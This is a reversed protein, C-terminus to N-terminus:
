TGEKVTIRYILQSAGSVPVYVDAASLVNGYADLLEEKTILTTVDEPVPATIVVQGASVDRYISTIVAQGNIRVSQVADAVASAAANLMPQQISPKNEAKVVIEGEYSAFPKEGLPWQGLAYNYDMGSDSSFPAQGLSWRGLIYNWGQPVYSVREVVALVADLYPRSVYLIHAPKTHNITWELEQTYAQGQAALSIYLTYNAGDVEVTWSDDGVLEDLKNYLFPLTFPPKTSIRNIIRQRRFELSEVTPDALIRLASEWQEVASIDMTLPFFNDLVQQMATQYEEFTPQEAMCIAQYDLVERYWPPLLSLLDVNTHIM